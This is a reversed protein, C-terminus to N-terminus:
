NVPVCITALTRCPRVVQNRLQLSPKLLRVSLPLAFSSPSGNCHVRIASRSSLPLCLDVPPLVLDLFNSTQLCNNTVSQNLNSYLTPLSLLLTNSLLTALVHVFFNYSEHDVLLGHTEMSVLDMSM